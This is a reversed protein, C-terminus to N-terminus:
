ELHASNNVSPFFELPDLDEMTGQAGAVSGDKQSESTLNIKLGVKEIDMPKELALQLHEQIIHHYLAPKATFEEVCFVCRIGKSDAHNMKMHKQLAAASHFTQGSCKTCEIQKMHSSVTHQNLSAEFRYTKGCGPVSCKFNHNSQTQEVELKSVTIEGISLGSTNKGNHSTQFTSNDQADGLTSGPVDVSDSMESEVTEGDEGVRIFINHSM